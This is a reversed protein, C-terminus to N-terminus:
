KCATVWAFAPPCRSQTFAYGGNRVLVYVEGTSGQRPGELVKSKCLEPQARKQRAISSGGSSAGCKSVLLRFRRLLSHQCSCAAGSAAAPAATWLASARASLRLHLPAGSSRRIGIYQQGRMACLATRQEPPQLTCARSAQPAAARWGPGTCVPAGQVQPVCVGAVGRREGASCESSTSRLHQVLQVCVRLHPETVYVPKMRERQFPDRLLCVSSM